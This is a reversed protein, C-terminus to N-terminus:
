KVVVRTRGLNQIRTATDLLFHGGDLVHIAATKVHAVGRTLFSAGDAFFLM